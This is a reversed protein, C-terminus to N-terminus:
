KGSNRMSQWKISNWKVQQIRNLLHKILDRESEMVYLYDGQDRTSNVGDFAGKIEKVLQISTVLLTEEDCEM